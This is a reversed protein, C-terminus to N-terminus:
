QWEVIGGLRKLERLTELSEQNAPHPFFRAMGEMHTIQEDLTLHGRKNAKLDLEIFSIVEPTAGHEEILRNHIAEIRAMFDKPGSQEEQTSERQQWMDHKHAHVDAPTHTQVDDTRWDSDEPVPPTEEVNEETVPETFQDDPTETVTASQGDTDQDALGTEQPTGQSVNNIPPEVTRPVQPLSEDFARKERELYLIWGGAVLLCVICAVIINRM